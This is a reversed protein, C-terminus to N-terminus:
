NRFFGVRECKRLAIEIGLLNNDDQNISDIKHNGDVFFIPENNGFSKFDEKILLNQNIADEKTIKELTAM